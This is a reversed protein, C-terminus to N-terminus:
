LSERKWRKEEKSTKQFRISFSTGGDTSTEITGKLQQILINILTLGLSGDEEPTNEPIGCGNDSIEILYIDDAEKQGAITITGTDRGQFAHKLSNSIIENLILGVPIATDFNISLGDEIIFRYDIRTNDASLNSSLNETLREIYEKLFVKQFDESNYLIEHVIGMANIRNRITGLRDSSIMAPSSSYQLDVLSSIIQLNNKVRHHIESLLIERENLTNKLQNYAELLEMYSSLTQSLDDEITSKFIEMLRIYEDSYSNKESDLVCITGFLEGDPWKIPFGLYSVMGLKIDPNNKWLEIERADPVLLRSDTGIVTECYLGHNLKESEGPKYPNGGSRSSLFVSIKHEDLQMILGSPVRLCDALVELLIQWKTKLTENIEPKDASTIPVKVPSDKGAVKVSAYKIDADM